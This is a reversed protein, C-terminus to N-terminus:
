SERTVDVKVDLSAESVSWTGRYTRDAILRGSFLFEVKLTRVEEPALAGWGGSVTARVLGGHSKALEDM